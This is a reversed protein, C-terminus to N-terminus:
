DGDDAHDDGPDGDKPRAEKEPKGVADFIGRGFHEAIVEFPDQKELLQKFFTDNLKESQSASSRYSDKIDRVKRFEPACKPCENDNDLICRMHFSHQCLFHIAPLTLSTNCAHCKTGQFTASKSRLVDIEERM